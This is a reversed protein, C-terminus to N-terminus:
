HVAFLSCAQAEMHRAHFTLFHPCPRKKPEIINARAGLRTNQRTLRSFLFHAYALYFATYFYLQSMVRSSLFIFFPPIFLPPRMSNCLLCLCADICIPM